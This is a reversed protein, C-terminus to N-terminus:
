HNKGNVYVYSSFVSIISFARDEIILVKWLRKFSLFCTEPRGYSAMVTINWDYMIVGSM